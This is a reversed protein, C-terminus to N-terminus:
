LREVNGLSRLRSASYLVDRTEDYLLFGLQSGGYDPLVRHPEIAPKLTPRTSTTIFEDHERVPEKESEPVYNVLGHSAFLLGLDLYHLEDPMRQIRSRYKTFFVLMVKCWAQLFIVPENETKKKESVKGIWENMAIFDIELKWWSEPNKNLCFELWLITFRCPLLSQLGLLNCKGPEGDLLHAQWFTSAYDIFPSTEAYKKLEFKPRSWELRSVASIGPRTYSDINKQRAVLYSICLTAIQPGAGRVDLYFPWCPDSQLMSKPRQQLIEKTSLHILRLVGNRTTVLSGCILEIDNESYLLDDEHDSSHQIEFRLIEYIESLLLPRIASTVWLLVKSAMVMRSSSLTRSLRSIITRHLEELGSPIALLQKEVESITGLSKLEKIMLFVWLFM